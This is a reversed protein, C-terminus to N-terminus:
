LVMFESLRCISVVFPVTTSLGHWNEFAKLPITEFSSYSPFFIEVVLEEGVRLYRCEGLVTGSNV